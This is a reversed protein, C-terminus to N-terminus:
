KWEFPFISKGFIFLSVMVWYSIANSSRVKNDVVSLIESYFLQDHDM